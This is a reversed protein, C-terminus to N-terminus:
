IWDKIRKAIKDPSIGLDNYLEEPKGQEVFADGIGMNLVDAKVSNANLWELISSGYGGMLANDEITVIKNSLSLAERILDSDLPKLFRMDAVGVDLGKEKLAKAAELAPYVRNGIALINVDKGKKLWEGTGLKYSKFKNIEVGVGKGRPYRIAVPKNLTLATKLANRLENENSPAMFVLNPLIRLFSMDFVGHHTPGDDGVIGGRDMVMIVPLKQLCVDHMIQDFARQMFTSYINVIPKLGEAALGAAFTIAHEEAIGVDFYRGPYKDRFVDLGTGEPMAATIAMIKKDKDALEVIADSFVKTFSPVTGGKGNLAGTEVDFAGAGHFETPSMEAPEYGKGKKTVIHLLIPGKVEKLRNFVEVMEKINHGDIPGFYSIGMEEFIMGPFFMAKTRKAIKFATKGFSKFRSLFDELKKETDKITGPAIIKALINGLMGERRSIFMQNDNLVILMNSQIHGINQMAEWSMGGTMCGDSVIAVVKNTGKVRDRAEAMGCAASLATSAHGAGFCDYKSEDRKLFGSIGGKQRLTNFKKLRGTLIKHAYTQHGTDFVIKDKPTNFSYHLAVILDTAGLSSALHGGSNSINEVIIGRTEAAVKPLEEIKLKKLDKPSKIKPLLEM